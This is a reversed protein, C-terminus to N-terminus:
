HEVELKRTVAARMMRVVVGEAVELDIEDGDIGRITGYMGSASVIRDGVELSALLESIEKQRKQQPRIFLLYFGVVVVVLYAITGYQSM